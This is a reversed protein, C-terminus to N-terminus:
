PRGAASAAPTKHRHEPQPSRARSSAVASFARKATPWMTFVCAQGPSVGDEGAALDVEIGEGARSLWAPQPPRTSRVKVFVEQWGAGLGPRHKRAWGISTACGCGAPACRRARGVVVRRSPTLGSWMFRIARPSASGAGSAVTFPHHRCARRPAATSISSTAPRAAWSSASSCRTHRGSPVFCIDQSDHKDAVLCISALERTEAKTRDGPPLAAPRAARLPPLCSIARTAGRRPRPLARGAAVQLTPLSTIAPRWSAAGTRARDFCIASSSRSTANSAPCRRKAPLMARPLRDIVM